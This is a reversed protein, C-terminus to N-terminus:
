LSCKSWSATPIMVSTDCTSSPTPAQVPQGSSVMMTCAGSHNHFATLGLVKESESMDEMDVEVCRNSIFGSGRYLHDISNSWTGRQLQVRVCFPALTVLQIHSNAISPMRVKELKLRQVHFVGKCLNCSNFIREEDIKSKLNMKKVHQVAGERCVFTKHTLWGEKDTYGGPMRIMPATQVGFLGKALDAEAWTLFYHGM